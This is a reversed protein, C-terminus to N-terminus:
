VACVQEWWTRKIRLESLGDTVEPLYMAATEGIVMPKHHTSDGSFREYLNGHRVGPAKLQLVGGVGWM